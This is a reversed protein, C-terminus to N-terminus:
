KSVKVYGAKTATKTGGPGTVTLKVTYNGAKNYTHSPNQGTGTTKDGFNWLWSTVANTSADTFKVTLPDKGSTPVATFNPKPPAYVTIYNSQALTNTGGPGKVTLEVTYIGAKTYTHSPNRAKSTQNNGFNWSWTKIIGISEDSFKVQLPMKGSKPTGSFHAAISTSVAIGSSTGTISSTATDTATITQSGAANLTASFTGTGNTLKANAPLAASGDTSTFHVTGAYGTVTNSSSNLATVTFSVATGATASSPASVTFHTAPLSAVTIANSTGTISSTGTVTATITQSGAANLTASFAGTGNTLKTNSPLAASGDTSTFHVTGAYGTVTNSSSNLATVTFSVATGATASSPASITFHTASVNTVGTVAQTLRNGDADYAYTIVTGDDYTATALRNLSDYAYQVTTSALAQPSAYFCVLIVLLFHLVWKRKM